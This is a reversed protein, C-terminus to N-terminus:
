RFLHPWWLELFLALMFLVGMLIYFATTKHWPTRLEKPLQRRSVRQGRPLKENKRRSVKLAEAV